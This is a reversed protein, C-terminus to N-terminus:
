HNMCAHVVELCNFSHISVSVTATYRSTPDHYHLFVIGQTETHIVMIGYLNCDYALLYQIFHKHGHNVKYKMHVVPNITIVLHWLNARVLLHHSHTIELM